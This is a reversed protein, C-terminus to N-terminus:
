RSFVREREMRWLCLEPTEGPQLAYSCGMTGGKWSGTGEGVEDSFKVDIYRRVKRLFPSWMWGRRRWEMEQVTVTAIREQREGSERTYVYPLDDSWRGEPPTGWGPTQKTRHSWSDDAMLQSTRVWDLGWPLHLFWYKGEGGWHWQISDRLDPASWNWAVGWSDVIDEPDERSPWLHVYVRGYLFQFHLSWWEEFHCLEM